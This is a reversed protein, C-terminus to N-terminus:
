YPQIRRRGRAWAGALGFGVVLMTWAAPEPVPGAITETVTVPGANSFALELYAPFSWSWQRYTSYSWPGREYTASYWAGQFAVPGTTLGAGSFWVSEWDYDDSGEWDYYGPVYEHYVFAYETHGILAISDAPRSLTLTVLDTARAPASFNPLAVETWDSGDVTTSYSLLLKAEAPAAALMAAALFLNRASHSM